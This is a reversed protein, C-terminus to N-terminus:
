AILRWGIHWNELLNGFFVRFWTREQLNRPIWELWRIVFERDVPMGSLIPYFLAFLAIAIVVYVIASVRTITLTNQGFWTTESVHKFAFVTLLILFPVAPFYHYIFAMRSVPIWPIILIAYAVFLFLLTKDFKKVFRVISFVFAAFGGWWVLPNGFAAISQWLGDVQGSYYWIPSLNLIWLLWFSANPHNELTAVHTGHYWFMYGQTVIVDLFFNGITNDPLRWFFAPLGFVRQTEAPDFRPDGTMLNGVIHHPIFSLVYIVLPIGVFFLVCWLCTKWALKSFDKYPAKRKFVLHERFRKVMIIIFVIALGFAVYVGQWKNAIGLGMFIGSALLPMLTKWFATEYFSMKYYKYMCYFAALGFFVVYTDITALRTQTFRMFDFTFLLAAFSAWFTSKFMDRAFFFLLPIMLVGFLAGAFRWGFPTMGFINIFFAMIMKGLHPHTAEFIPLGNLMEYAARPHYIEDFYSSNMFDRREPVLEQSNTLFAADSTTYVSTTGAVPILEFEM